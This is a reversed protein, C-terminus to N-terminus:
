VLATTVLSAPFVTRCLGVPELSQSTTVCSYAYRPDASAAGPSLLDSASDFCRMLIRLFSARLMRDPQLLQTYLAAMGRSADESWGTDMVCFTPTCASVLKRTDKKSAQNTPESLIVHRQLRIPFGRHTCRWVTADPCGEFQLELEQRCM